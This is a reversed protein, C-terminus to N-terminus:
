KLQINRKNIIIDMIKKWELYQALSQFGYSKVKNQRLERKQNCWACSVYEKVTKHKHDSELIKALEKEVIYFMEPNKLNDPLGELVKPTEGKKNIKKISIKKM